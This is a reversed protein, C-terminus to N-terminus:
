ILQKWIKWNDLRKTKKIFIGHDLRYSFYYVKINASSLYRKLTRLGIFIGADELKELLAEQSEIEGNSYEELLNKVSQNNLFKDLGSQRPAHMTCLAMFILLIIFM